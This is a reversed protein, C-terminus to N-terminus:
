GRKSNKHVLRKGVVGDDAPQSTDRQRRRSTAAASAEAKAAREQQRALRRFHANIERATELQQQRLRELFSVPSTLAQAAAEAFANIDTRTGIGTGDDDFSGDGDGDHATAAAETATEYTEDPTTTREDATTM